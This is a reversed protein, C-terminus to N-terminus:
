RRPSETVAAAFCAFLLLLRGRSQASAKGRAVGVGFCLRSGIFSKSFGSESFLFAGHFTTIVFNGVNHFLVVVFISNEGWFFIGQRVYRPFM